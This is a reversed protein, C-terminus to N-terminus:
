CPSLPLPSLNLPPFQILPFALNPLASDPPGLGRRLHSPGNHAGSAHGQRGLGM